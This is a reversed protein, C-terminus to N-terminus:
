FLSKRSDKRMPFTQPFRVINHSALGYTFCVFHLPWCAVLVSQSWAVEVLGQARLLGTGTSKKKKGEGVDMKNLIKGRKM